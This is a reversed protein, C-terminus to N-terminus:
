GPNVFLVRQLAILSQLVLVFAVSLFAWSSNRSKAIFVAAPVQFFVGLYIWLRTVEGRNIGLFLVVLFTATVGLIFLNEASVLENNKILMRLNSLLDIVLYIFIMVIPLGSGYLLEKPNELVWIWYPHNARTNYELADKIILSLATFLDFQFFIKFFLYGGLFSVITIIIIRLLTAYSIMKSKVYYILIALFILGSALPSPEFLVLLYLSIGFLMLYIDRKKELYGIFLFLSLLNIVPTVTNLIPLFFLKAPFLAYLILAFYSIKRNKFLFKCIGYLILAGISSFLVILYGMRQPSRTFLGLIQFFIIKGPLNTQAHLPFTSVLSDFDKLIRGFPYQISVSYFSNAGDSLVVSGYIFPYVSHILFQIAVIFIFTLSVTIIEHKELTKNGIFIIGILLGIILIPIYVPISQIQQFYPYFYNGTKSGFIFSKSYVMGIFFLSIVCFTLIIPLSDIRTEKVKEVMNVNRNEM